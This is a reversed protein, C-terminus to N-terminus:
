FGNKSVIVISDNSPLAMDLEETALKEVRSYAAWTSRELLYQGWMVQLEANHRRSTELENLLLRSRHTTSVVTLASVLMGVWVLSALALLGYRRKEPETTM